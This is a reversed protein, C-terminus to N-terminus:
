FSWKVEQNNGKWKGNAIKGKLNEIGRGIRM